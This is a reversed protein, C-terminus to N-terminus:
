RLNTIWDVIAATVAAPQEVASLHGAGPIQVFRCGPDSGPLAAAIREVTAVPTTADQDGVLVLAPGDFARLAAFSDPRAAMARQTWAIAAPHNGRIWASLQGVLAADAHAAPGLLMPLVTEPVWFSGQADVRDAFAHRNAQAEIGDADARTDALILGALRGPHRRLLNMAVYGGLSLGGVVARDIDHEDLLAVVDDAFTDLDPTSPLAQRNEGFGRYDPSLVRYGLGTLAQQQHCWMRHDLPFAHLLVVDNIM